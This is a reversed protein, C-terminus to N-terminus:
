KKYKKAYGKRLLDNNLNIGKYYVEAITRGYYGKGERIITVYKGEIKNRLYKAAVRGNYTNLEPTDIRAFRIREGGKLVITDGDIVRAVRETTNQTFLVGCSMLLLVGLILLINRMNVQM